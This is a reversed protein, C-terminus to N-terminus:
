SAPKNRDVIAIIDKHVTPDMKNKMPVFRFKFGNDKILQVVKGGALTSSIGYNVFMEQIAEDKAIFDVLAIDAKSANKNTALVYPFAVAGEKPWIVALSEDKISGLITPGVIPGISVQHSGNMVEEAVGCGSLPRKKGKRSDGKMTEMAPMKATKIINEFKEAGVIDYLSALTRMAFCGRGPVALTGKFDALEAWSKPVDAKDILKPNYAIAMVGMYPVLFQGDGKDALASFKPAMALQNPLSKFLSKANNLHKFIDRGPPTEGTRGYTMLVNVGLKGDKISKKVLKSFGGSRQYEANISLGTKKTFAKAIKDTVEGRIAGPLHLLLSTDTVVKNEVDEAATVATSMSLALIGAAISSIIVPQVKSTLVKEM